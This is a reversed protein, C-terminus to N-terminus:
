GEADSKRKKKLLLLSYLLTVMILALLARILLYLLWQWKETLVIGLPNSYSSFYNIRHSVGVVKNDYYVVNSFVSNLYFTPLDLAFLSVIAKKVDRFELGAEDGFGIYLSCAVIMAHYLFFQWARINTFYEGVAHFDSTVSALVIGMLGGPVGSAFMLSYLWKKRNEDKLFLALPMFFLYLSCLELPLHEMALYPSYKGTAVYAISRVGNEEIVVPNVMPVIQTTYLVKIVESVFGLVICIQLVRRLSPRRKMCLVFFFAILFFSIAIWLLHGTSFM